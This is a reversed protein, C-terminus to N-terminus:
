KKEEKKKAAVPLLFTFTSGEGFKSDATITGGHQEVLQKSIALGLGTGGYRGSIGPEVQEFKHFLKVLNEEKIGIGTDSVSFRAMDGEKKATITVTGGKPKSFKVANSLLNFLIQKFRQKDAEIFELAPDLETEIKVNHKMATEKILTLTEKIIVPVSLKDIVLAIKGAEVKSLDLIDNILNLLFAGSSHINDIYREQKENLKGALGQNMLESFGLISNLPTRLEHSMNALFETKARDAAELRLNELHIEAAKKRETIDKIISTYSTINQERDKLAVATIEVPIIRGDKTLRVSEYDTFFGQSNLIGICHDLEKQAREEPITITIPKGIIEEAKYGLMKEAGRNWSFINGNLDISCVADPVNKVISALFTIEKETRKRETIDLCYEIIQAVNGENDFIPYGHVEAIMPNGDKDRHIHEVVVPKKTRKVEDLTCTHEGSCPRDRGHTLAYCKSDPTLEGLRAAPNALMITYNSADIIYFPHTLSEFINNLFERQQKIQEEARKRETIDTAIGEIIIEDGEKRKGISRDQFWHWKGLSDKIRYEIDFPEGSIFKQIVLKVRELEAQDISNEWLFPHELLYEVSYGLISEVRSSYYIGGRKSSFSYIIDPAGEVLRRYKSESEQLAKEARLRETIITSVGIIGIIKGQADRYPVFQNDFYVGKLDTIGTLTEGALARRIVERGNITEGNPQIVSLTAFMDLASVGVNEGPKLNVKELSKGESLTFVGQNDIAFITIPANNLVTRFLEESKRLAEEAENKKKAIEISELAFSIDNTVEDLLQIEESDFFHPLSAYISFAGIVKDFHKIPLAISSRYGRKLAEERWLDMRPDKEIDDCVYHRNERIATGTPGRGAPVDEVSIAKINSLYGDEVGSYAVPNVLNTKEDIMGIWAMQIKGYEVAIRCAEGLIKDKDRVRVIVQNIQSIVAYVRNLKLIKEEARKRETIDRIMVLDAPKGKYSIVGANIEAQVTTGDKRLLVTEYIPPVNENAMRRQYRGMVKDREDPHIHQIIPTELLEEVSSGWLEALRVNVFKVLGDQIILIGDNSREVLNRYKEESERLKRNLRLVSFYHIIFFIVAVLAIAIGVAALVRETNWYPEPKGYWKAYMAEYEPTLIFAKVAEDLKNFLEPQGKRVGIARKIEALRDGVPKIRDEIGSQRAVRLLTEEPYVMADANGSILSMLAEEMSNYVLLEAGGREKMIFYGQNEAVVAVKLGTLDDINKIGNTTSRVFIHIDSTEVPATFDSYKKREETIGVNPILSIEGKQMAALVDSFNRYVVYRVNIGSRRAIEDMVEIAFGYPKGTKADVQYQPPFNAPVGTKYEKDEQAALAPHMQYAFSVLLLAIFVFISIGCCHRRRNMGAGTLDQVVKEPEAVEM